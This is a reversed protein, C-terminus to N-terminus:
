NRHGTADSTPLRDVLVERPRVSVLETGAPVYVHIPRTGKGPPNEILNVFVELQDARVNELVSPDGRLVLSVQTPELRFRTENSVWNLVALPVHDFQRIDHGIEGQAPALAIGSRVALWILGALFLAFLKQWRNIIFFDRGLM